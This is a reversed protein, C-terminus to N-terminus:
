LNCYSIILEVVNKIVIWLVFLMYWYYIMNQVLQDWVKVCWAIKLWGIELKRDLFTGGFLDAVKSRGPTVPTGFGVASASPRPPPSSCSAGPRAGQPPLPLPMGWAVRKSSKAQKKTSLQNVHTKEYQNSCSKNTWIQNIQNRQGIVLPGASDCGRSSWGFPPALKTWCAM